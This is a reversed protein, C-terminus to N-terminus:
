PNFTVHHEVTTTNGAQDTAIIKIDNDGNQLPFDYTFSGNDNVIAWSGNITVNTNPDTSGQVHLTQNDGGSLTEDGNPATVTLNPGKNLYRITLTNSFASEKSGAFSKAQITNNGNNLIVNDFNFKGQDDTDQQGAISGNTYLKVTQGKAAIGSITIKASNTANFSDDLVPPAIYSLGDSPQINNVDQKTNGLYLIYKTFLPLGYFILFLILIISGLISYIITHKKQEEVHRRIHSSM